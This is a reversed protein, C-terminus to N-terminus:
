HSFTNAAPVSYYIEFSLYRMIVKQAVYKLQTSPEQLRNLYINLSNANALAVCITIYSSVLVTKAGNVTFLAYEAHILNPFTYNALLRFFVLRNCDNAFIKNSSNDFSASQKFNSETLQLQYLVCSYRGPPTFKNFIM